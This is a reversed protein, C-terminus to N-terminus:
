LVRDMLSLATSAGNAAEQHTDKTEVNIVNVVQVHAPIFNESTNPARHLYSSVITEYVRLDFSIVLDFPAATWKEPHNKVLSDRELM